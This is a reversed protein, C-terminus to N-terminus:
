QTLVDYLGMEYIFKYIKDPYVSIYKDIKPKTINAKQMYSILTQRCNENMDDAYMDIDKLLDLFQLILYNEKTVEFKPKRLILRQNKLTIERYKGGSNNSVIELAYPVQTTIGLQNAFTYGSYYGAINGNRTIYKYRAVVEPPLSCEGKLRSTTPIYYIGTDYRKIKDSDCLSKFLQRLHNNNINPLDIDILFIPENPEYNEVLYDYLMDEDGLLYSSSLEIKTLVFM